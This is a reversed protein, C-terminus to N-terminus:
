GQYDRYNILVLSKGMGSKFVVEEKFPIEKEINSLLREKIEQSEIFNWVSNNLMSEKTYETGFGEINLEMKRSM